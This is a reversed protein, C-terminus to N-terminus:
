AAELEIEAFNAWMLAQREAIRILQWDNSFTVIDLAGGSDSLAWWDEAEPWEETEVCRHLWSLSIV